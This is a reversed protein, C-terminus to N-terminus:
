IIFWFVSFNLMEVKGLLHMSLFFFDGGSITRKDTEVLCRDALNTSEEWESCNPCFRATLRQVTVKYGIKRYSNKETRIGLYSDVEHPLSSM